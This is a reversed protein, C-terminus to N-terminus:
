QVPYVAEPELRRSPIEVLIWDNIGNGVTHAQDARNQRERNDQNAVTIPLRAGVGANLV